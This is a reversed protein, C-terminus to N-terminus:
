DENGHAPGTLGLHWATATLQARGSVKLPNADTLEYREDVSPSHNVSCNQSSDGCGEGRGLHSTQRGRQLFLVRRNIPQERWRGYEVNLRGPNPLVHRVRSFHESRKLLTRLITWSRRIPGPFM